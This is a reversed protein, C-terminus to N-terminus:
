HNWKADDQMLLFVIWIPWCQRLLMESIGQAIIFVLVFLCLFQSFCLCVCCTDIVCRVGTGANTLVQWGLVSKVRSGGDNAYLVSMSDSIPYWHKNIFKLHSDLCELQEDSSLHSDWTHPPSWRSILMGPHNVYHNCRQDWATPSKLLDLLNVESQRCSYFIAFSYIYHPNTSEKISM